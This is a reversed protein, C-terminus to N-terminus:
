NLDSENALLSILQFEGIAWQQIPRRENAVLNKHHLLLSFIASLHLLFYLQSIFKITAKEKYVIAPGRQYRGDARGNLHGRNSNSPPARLDPQPPRCEVLLYSKDQQRLHKVPKLKIEHAATESSVAEVNVLRTPQHQHQHHHAQPQIRKHNADHHICHPQHQKIRPAPDACVLRLSCSPGHKHHYNQTQMARSDSQPQEQKLCSLRTSHEAPDSASAYPESQNANRANSRTRSTLEHDRAYRKSSDSLRGARVGSELSYIKSQVREQNYSEQGKFRRSLQLEHESIRFKAGQKGDVSKQSM